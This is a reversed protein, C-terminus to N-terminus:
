VWSVWQYMQWLGKLVVVGVLVMVMLVESPLLPPRAFPTCHVGRGCM